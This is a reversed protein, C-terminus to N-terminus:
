AVVCTHFISRPRWCNKDWSPFMKIFNIPENNQCIKIIPVNNESRDTPENRVYYTVVELARDREAKSSGSGEWIYIEDGGDLIMIDDVYLDSQKFDYIEELSIKGNVKFHFFRPELIPPLAIDRDYAKQGGLIKWFEITEDGEVMTVMQAGDSIRKATSLAMEKEFKSTGKGQWVYVYKKTKLVFADDSALSEGVAKRQTARVDEACTGRVRLLCIEKMSSDDFYSLKGKFIQVFHRIQGQIIRVRIATGREM